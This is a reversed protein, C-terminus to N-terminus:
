ITGQPGRTTRTREFVITDSGLGLEICELWHVHHKLFESPLTENLISNLEFVLLAESLIM